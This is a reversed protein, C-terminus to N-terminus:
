KAQSNLSKLTSFFLASYILINKEALTIKGEAFPRFASLLVKDTAPNNYSPAVIGAKRGIAKLRGEIAPVLSTINCILQDLADKSQKSLSSAKGSKQLQCTYKLFQYARELSSLYDEAKNDQSKLLAISSPLQLFLSRANWRAESLGLAEFSDVLMLIKSESLELPQPPQRNRRHIFPSQSSSSGRGLGALNNYQLLSARM